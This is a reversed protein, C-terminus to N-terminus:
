QLRRIAGSCNMITLTGLNRVYAAFIWGELSEMFLLCPREPLVSITCSPNFSSILFYYLVFLQTCINM